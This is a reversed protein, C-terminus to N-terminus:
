HCLEQDWDPIILMQGPMEAAEGEIVEGFTILRREIDREFHQVVVYPRGGQISTALVLCEEEDGSRSDVIKASSIVTVAYAHNKIAENKVYETLSRKQENDEYPLVIPVTGEFSHLIATPMHANHEQLTFKAIELLNRIADQISTNLDM